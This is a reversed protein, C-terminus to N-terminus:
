KPHPGIYDVLVTPPDDIVRYHIRHGDPLDYQLVGRSEYAGRLKKTKGAVRAKPTFPAIENLFREAEALRNGALASLGKRAKKSLKVTYRPALEGGQSEM